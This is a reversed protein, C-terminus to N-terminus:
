HPQNSRVSLNRAADGSFDVKIQDNAKATVRGMVAM